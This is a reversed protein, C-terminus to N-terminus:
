QVKGLLPGSLVRKNQQTLFCLAATWLPLQLYQLFQTRPWVDSIVECGLWGLLVVLLNKGRSNAPLALKFDAAEAALIADEVEGNALSGMSLLLVGTIQIRVQFSPENRPPLM